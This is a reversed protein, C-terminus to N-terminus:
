VQGRPRRQGVIEMGVINQDSAAVLDFVVQGLERETDRARVGDGPQPAQAPDVGECREPQTGLGALPFSEIM